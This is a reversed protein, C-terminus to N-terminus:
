VLQRRHVLRDLHRRDLRDCAGAHGRRRRCVVGCSGSSCPEDTWRDHYCGGSGVCGVTGVYIGCLDETATLRRKGNKSLLISTHSNPWLSHYSLSLSLSLSLSSSLSISRWRARWPKSAISGAAASM